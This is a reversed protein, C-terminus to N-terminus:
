CLKLVAEVVLSQAEEVEKISVAELCGFADMFEKKECPSMVGYFAEKLQVSSSKLAIMIIRHDLTSLIKQIVEGEVNLIEEFLFGEKFLTVMPIIENIDDEEELQHTLSLCKDSLPILWKVYIGIVVLLLLTYQILAVM